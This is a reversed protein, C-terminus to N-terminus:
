ALPSNFLLSKSAEEQQSLELSELGQTVDQFHKMDKRVYPWPLTNDKGIGMNSRCYALVCSFSKITDKETM